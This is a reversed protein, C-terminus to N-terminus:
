LRSTIAPRRRRARWSSTAGPKRAPRSGTGTEGDPGEGQETWALDGARAIAAEMDLRLAYPAGSEILRAREGPSLLRASGPYLPAGDPDRPWAGHAERQAM